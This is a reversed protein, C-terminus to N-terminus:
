QTTHFLYINNINLSICSQYSTPIVELELWGLVDSNKLDVIQCYYDLVFFSLFFTQITCKFCMHLM